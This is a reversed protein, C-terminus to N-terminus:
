LIIHGAEKKAIAFDFLINKNIAAFYGTHEYEYAYHKEITQLLEKLQLLVAFEHKCHYSCYCSCLLQSIEGHSYKFDVEYIEGGEVIAYGTTGSISIYCVKNEIYYNRGRESINEKINFKNIESLPFAVDDFSSIFEDEAKLPARFWNIVKSGPLAGPDFSIFQNKTMFFHGNVTTDVLFIVRRYHSSRIKFHYSVETIIGPVGEMDGEVYVRDGCHLDFRDNLYSLTIGKNEFYVQVVSKRPLTQTQQVSSKFETPHYEFNTTGPEIKFAM